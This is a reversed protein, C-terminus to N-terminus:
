GGQQGGRSRPGRTVLAPGGCPGVSRCPASPSRHSPRPSRHSPLTAVANAESMHGRIAVKKGCVAWEWPCKAAPGPAMYGPQAPDFNQYAFVAVNICGARAGHGQTQRVAAAWWPQEGLTGQLTNESDGQVYHEPGLGDSAWGASQRGDPRAVRLRTLRPLNM